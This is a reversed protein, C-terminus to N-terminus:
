RGEGRNRPPGSPRVGAGVRPVAGLAVGPTRLLGDTPSRWAGLAADSAYASVLREFDADGSDRGLQVLLIAAAAAATALTAWLGTRRWPAAVRRTAGGEVVRLEPASEARASAVRRAFDPVGEPAGTEARLAEFAGRLEREDRDGTEQTM